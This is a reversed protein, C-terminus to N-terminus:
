EALAQGIANILQTTQEPTGVSIRLYDALAARSYYRV